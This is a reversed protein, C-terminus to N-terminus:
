EGLPIPSADAWRMAQSAPLLGRAQAARGNIWKV